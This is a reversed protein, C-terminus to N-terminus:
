TCAPVRARLAGELRPQPALDLTTAAYATAPLDIAAAPTLTPSM